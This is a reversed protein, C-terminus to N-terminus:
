LKAYFIHYSHLIYQSSSLVNWRFSPKCHIQFDIFFGHSKGFFYAAASLLLGYLQIINQRIVIGLYEPYDLATGLWLYGGTRCVAVPYGVLKGDAQLYNVARFVAGTRFSNVLLENVASRDIKVSTNIRGRDINGSLSVM